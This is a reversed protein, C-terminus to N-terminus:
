ATGLFVFSCRCWPLPLLCSFGSQKLALRVDGCGHCCLVPGGARCSPLALCGGAKKMFDQYMTVIGEIGEMTTASDRHLSSPLHPLQELLAAQPARGQVVPCQSCLEQTGPCCRKWGTRCWCGSQTLAMHEGDRM